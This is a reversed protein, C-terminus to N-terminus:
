QGQNLVPGFIDLIFLNNFAYFQMLYGFEPLDVNQDFDYIRVTCVSM